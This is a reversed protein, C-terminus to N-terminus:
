GSQDVAIDCVERGSRVPRLPRAAPRRLRRCRQRRHRDLRLRHDPLRRSDPPLQQQGAETTSYYMEKGQKKRDILGAKLLKKVAYNVLHTDEINLVFCIDALRKERARHNVTHIVMVDLANMDTVGTAQICRVIWRQFANNCIFLGFELESLESARESVLHSSSVIPVSPRPARDEKPQDSM